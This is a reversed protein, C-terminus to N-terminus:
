YMDDHSNISVDTSFSDLKGANVKFFFILTQKTLILVM